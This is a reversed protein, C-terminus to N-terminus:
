LYASAVVAVAVIAAAAIFVGRRSKPKGSERQEGSPQQGGLVTTPATPKSLVEGTPLIRTETDSAAPASGFKLTGADEGVAGGGDGLPTGDKPCFKLADDHVRNCQPCRKM